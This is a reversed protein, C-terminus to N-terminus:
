AAKLIKLFKGYSPSIWMLESFVFAYGAQTSETNAPCLQLDVCDYSEAKFTIETERTLKELGAVFRKGNDTLDEM